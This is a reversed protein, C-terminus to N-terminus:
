RPGDKPEVSSVVSNGHLVRYRYPSWFGDATSNVRRRYCDDAYKQVRAANHMECIGREMAAWLVASVTIAGDGTRNMYEGVLEWLEASVNLTVRKDKPKNRDSRSRTSATARKTNNDM